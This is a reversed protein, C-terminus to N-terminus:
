LSWFNYINRLNETYAFKEGNFLDSRDFMDNNPLFDEDDDDDDDDVAFNDNPIASAASQGGDVMELWQTNHWRFKEEQIKKAWEEGHEQM